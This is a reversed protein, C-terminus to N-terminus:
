HLREGPWGGVPFPEYTRKLQSPVKVGITDLAWLSPRNPAVALSMSASSTQALIGTEM